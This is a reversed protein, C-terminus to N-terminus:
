CDDEMGRDIKPKRGTWGAPPFGPDPRLRSRDQAWLIDSCRGRMETLHEDSRCGEDRCSQVMELMDRERELGCREALRALNELGEAFEDEPTRTM